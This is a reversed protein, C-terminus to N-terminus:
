GGFLVKVVNVFVLVNLLSFIIIFYFSLTKIFSINKESYFRLFLRLFYNENYEKVNFYILLFWIFLVIFIICLIRIIIYLSIENQSFVLDNFIVIINLFIIITNLILFFNRFKNLM